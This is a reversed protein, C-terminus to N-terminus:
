PPLILQTLRSELDALYAQPNQRFRRQLTRKHRAAALDARLSQWEDISATALDAATFPRLRTMVAAVIRVSGRVVLAPSAVKRGTIRRELHRHRGFLHELDNNTRPLDPVDYCHFLGPWYSRTVKLFHAVAPELNDSHSQWRTMAGVLGIFQRQVQKGSLGESNDLIDAAAYVWRYAIEISPWLHATRQLGRRLLTELRIL